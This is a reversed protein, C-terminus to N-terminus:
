VLGRDEMWSSPVYPNEAREEATRFFDYVMRRVITGMVTTEGAEAASVNEYTAGEQLLSNRLHDIWARNALAAAFVRDDKQKGPAEPAIDSRTQRMTSMEDLLPMSRIDLVDTTFSDRFQNMLEMKTRWTTEFNLVYGAGMSDPRHYLYWRAQDLFDEWELGRVRNAYIEARLREKLQDFERMIARGPGGLEVNVVCNRYAGALYALIWAAQHTELDADAFEACQVLRDAYARWVSIASRDAWETRGYAPDCGIVYIGEPHPEHWVRLTVQDILAADIVESMETQFINTGINFTYGRFYIAEPNEHDTHALRQRRDIDEAWKQIVRSLFFSYGQVQFAQTETWPQSAELSGDALARDSQRWRYWALQEMSVSYGYMQAVQRILEGEEANPMITGFLRFRRDTREIRNQPKAWWGIFCTRKTYPDDKASIWMDHWPTGHGYARSEFIFLRDPHGQSLTERFSDIGEQTGYAGVESCWALVYGKSDAWSKKHQGAVLFDLRAGNSFSMYFRNDKVIEFSSGLFDEPFSEMMKNIQDRFGASNKDDDAVLCGIIRPHVALWFILIALGITTLGLQRSKLNYFEHIDDELADCLAELFMQQSLWLDLDSGGREDDISESEKSQIRLKSIFELLLPLWKQKKAKKRLSPTLKTAM